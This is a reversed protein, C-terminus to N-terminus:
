AKKSKKYDESNVLIETVWRAATGVVNCCKDPASHGGAEEFKAFDDPDALWCTRGFLQMQIHPCLITGYQKWFKDVFEQAPPFAATM